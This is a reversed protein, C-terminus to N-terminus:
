EHIVGIPYKPEYGKYSRISVRSRPHQSLTGHLYRRSRSRAIRGSYRPSNRSYQSASAVLANGKSKYYSHSKRISHTDHRALTHSVHKKRKDAAAIEYQDAALRRDIAIARQVAISSVLTCNPRHHHKSYHLSVLNIEEYKLWFLM